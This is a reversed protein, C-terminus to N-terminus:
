DLKFNVTLNFITAVPRGNLTGPRFKWRRVATMASESLGAPLGKIVKVTDVNGHRGAAGEGRRRLM